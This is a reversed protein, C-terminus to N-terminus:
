LTAFLTFAICCVAKHTQQRDTEAAAQGLQTGCLPDFLPMKVHHNTRDIYVFQVLGPCLEVFSDLPWNRLSKFALFELVPDMKQRARQQLAEAEALM